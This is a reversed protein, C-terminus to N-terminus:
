LLSIACKRRIFHGQIRYYIVSLSDEPCFSFYWVHTATMFLTVAICIGELQSQAAEAPPKMVSALASSRHVIYQPHDKMM